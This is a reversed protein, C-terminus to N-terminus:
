DHPISRILSYHTNCIGAGLFEQANWRRAATIAERWREQASPARSRRPNRVTWIKCGCPRCSLYLHPRDIYRIREM